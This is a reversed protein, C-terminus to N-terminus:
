KAYWRMGVCVRKHNFSHMCAFHPQSVAPKPGFILKNQNKLGKGLSKYLAM